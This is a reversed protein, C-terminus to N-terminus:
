TPPSAVPIHAWVEQNFPNVAPMTEGGAGDRWSGDIYLQYTDAM